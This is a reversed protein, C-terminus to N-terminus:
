SCTAMALLDFGAATVETLEQNSLTNVISVFQRGKVQLSLYATMENRSLAM